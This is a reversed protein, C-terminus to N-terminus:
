TKFCFCFNEKRDYLFNLTITINKKFKKSDDKQPPFNTGEWNYKNIFLKVKTIKEPYKKIREHNLM